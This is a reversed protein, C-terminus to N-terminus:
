IHGIYKGERFNSKQSVETVAGLVEVLKGMEVKPRSEIRKVLVETEKM